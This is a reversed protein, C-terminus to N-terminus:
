IGSIYSCVGPVRVIICIALTQITDGTGLAGSTGKKATPILAQHGHVAHVSAHVGISKCAQIM